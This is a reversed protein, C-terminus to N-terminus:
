IDLKYSVDRCVIDSYGDNFFKVTDILVQDKIKQGWAFNNVDMM